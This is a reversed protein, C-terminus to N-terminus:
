HIIDQVATRQYVEQEPVLLLHMMRLRHLLRVHSPSLSPVPFALPYAAGAAQARTIVHVRTAGEGTM